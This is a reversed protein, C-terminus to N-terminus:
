KATVSLLVGYQFNTGQLAIVIVMYNSGSNLGSITAMKAADGAVNKPVYMFPDSGLEAAVVIFLDANDGGMWNVTISSNANNTVRISSDPIDQLSTDTDAAEVTVMFTQMGMGGETDTATVTITATGPGVATISAMSMDMDDAMVTAVMEDSSMWEYTLDQGDADTFMAKVMMPDDGMTMMVDAIDAGMPYRNPGFAFSNTVRTDGDGVVILGLSQMTAGFGYITITAMGMDDLTIMGDDIGEVNSANVNLVRAEVMNNQDVGSTIIDPIGGTEDVATVIFNASANLAIRDPGSISLMDPPGAVAATLVLDDVDDDDCDTCDVTIMHGSFAADSDVTYIWVYANTPQTALSTAGDADIPDDVDDDLSVDLTGAVVTSLADEVHAKVLFTNGKGFRADMVCDKNDKMVFTDDTLIETQADMAALDILCDVSFISGVIKTADGGRSLTVESLDLSGTPGSYRATVTVRVAGTSKWDDLTIAATGDSMVDVRRTDTMLRSPKLSSGMIYAYTFTVASDIDDNGDELPRGNGDKVTATLVVSIPSDDGNGLTYMGAEGDVAVVEVGVVGAMFTSAPDTKAASGTEDDETNIDPQTQSPRGLFVIRLQATDNDPITTENEIPFNPFTAGEAAAYSFVFVNGNKAMSSNITITEKTSSVPGPRVLEAIHHLDVGKGFDEDMVADDTTSLEPADSLVAQVNPFQNGGTVLAIFEVDVDGTNEIKIDVSDTLVYCVEDDEGEDITTNGDDGDASPSIANTGDLGDVDFGCDAALDLAQANNPTFLSVALFAALALVPVLALIPVTWKKNKTRM